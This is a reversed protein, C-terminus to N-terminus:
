GRLARRRARRRCRADGGRPLLRAYLEAGETAALVSAGGGGADTADAWAFLAGVFAGSMSRALGTDVAVLEEDGSGDLAPLLASARLTAEPAKQFFDAVALAGGAAAAAGREFGFATRAGQKVGTAKGFGRAGREFPGNRVLAKPDFDVIVDGSALIVEGRRWPYGFYVTLLADLVVPALSSRRCRSRRSSSARPCTARCGGARAAPTSSSCATRRSSPPAREAAARTSGVDEDRLLALLALLTGGRARSAGGPPDSYRARARAPYLGARSARRCSSDTCARAQPPNSARAIM